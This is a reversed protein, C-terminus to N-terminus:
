FNKLHITRLLVLNEEQSHKIFVLSVTQLCSAAYLPHSSFFIEQSSHRSLFEYQFNIKLDMLQLYKSTIGTPFLQFKFTM